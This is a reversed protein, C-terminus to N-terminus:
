KKKPTAPLDRSANARAPGSKALAPKVDVLEVEFILTANAPINNRSRDGYGLEPPVYFIAKGGKKMTMLGETWGPIVGKVPFEAPTKRRYSSDFEKGDILTGKFNVMVIDDGKPSAGQGEQLVKYQLGSPLVKIGEADKNKAMFAESEVKNKEAQIQGEKQREESLNKMATQLEDETLALKEDLLSDQFGRGVAKADLDLKQARLSKGFQVGIAYSAQDKQTKPKRSFFGFYLLPVLLAVVALIIYVRLSQGKM